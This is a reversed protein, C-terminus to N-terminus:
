TAKAVNLNLLRAANQRAVLARDGPALGCGEFWVSAETMDEYPYDVSFLVREVGMEDIVGKLTPTHFNGSTTIHFNEHLYALLPRRLQKGCSAYEFRRQARAMMAVLGEGLHGLIIQQRPFRDFLGSTILRLAHTATEVGFAWMPGLLEPHSDYILRQSALPACPHLYLPVGLEYLREWFPMFKPHDLYEAQSSSRTVTYGNVLVGRFGLDRVAREAESAASEPDQLAVAAFGAFRTPHPEVFRRRLHDNAAAALRVAKAPDPEAQIGGATLSLVQLDIGQADMLALRDDVDRLRSEIHNWVEDPLGPPRFTVSNALDFGFHDELTIKHRIPDQNM